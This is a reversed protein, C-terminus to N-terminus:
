SEGIASSAASKWRKQPKEVGDLAGADMGIERHRRWAQHRHYTV